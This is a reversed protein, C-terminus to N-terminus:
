CVRLVSICLSPRPLQSLATLIKAGATTNETKHGCRHDHIRSGVRYGFFLIILKKM